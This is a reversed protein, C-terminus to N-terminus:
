ANRGIPLRHIRVTAEGLVVIAGADLDDAVVSLNNLILRAQEAPRQNAARRMLLFSPTTAGTLALITGFDTDASVLVRRELRATAIVVEDSARQLGVERAITVDHGAPRVVDAVKPSINQDLLFRM